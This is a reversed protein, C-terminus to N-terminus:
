HVLNIAVDVYMSVTHLISMNSSVRVLEVKEQVSLPQGDVGVEISKHRGEIDRLSGVITELCDDFDKRRAVGEKVVQQRQKVAANLADYRRRLGASNGLFPSAM